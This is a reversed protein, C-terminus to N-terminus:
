NKRFEYDLLRVFKVIIYLTNAMYIITFLLVLLGTHISFSVTLWKEQYILKLYLHGMYHVLLQIKAFLANWTSNFFSM